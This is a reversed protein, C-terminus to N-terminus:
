TSENAIYWKENVHDRRVDNVGAQRPSTTSMERSMALRLVLQLLALKYKYEKHKSM